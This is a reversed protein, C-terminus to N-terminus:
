VRRRRRRFLEASAREFLDGHFRFTSFDNTEQFKTMESELAQLAAINQGWCGIDIEADRVRTGRQLVGYNRRYVAVGDCYALRLWTLGDFIDAGAIHYLPTSIPDLGGLVHIPLDLGADEMAMRLKAIAQMRDHVSPGLEPETFGIVDFKSLLDVRDIVRDMRVYASGRGEPKALFERAMEGRRSLLSDAGAIQDDLPKHPQDYSIAVTPPDLPGSPWEDLVIELDDRLWRENRRRKDQATKLPAPPVYGLDSLDRRASIEYGGSDLFVLTAFGLYPLGKDCLHHHKVDYASVLVADAIFEEMLALVRGIEPHGKSSFAPVLLPTQFVHSGRM